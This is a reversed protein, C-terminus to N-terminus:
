LVGQRSLREFRDRPMGLWDCYVSENDRGAEGSPEIPPLPSESFRLASRPLVMDGYIPHAVTELAGRERM